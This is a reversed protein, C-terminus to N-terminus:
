SVVPGTTIIALGEEGLGGNQGRIASNLSRTNNVGWFFGGGFGWLQHVKVSEQQIKRSGGLFM